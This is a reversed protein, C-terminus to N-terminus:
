QTARRATVAPVGTSLFSLPTPGLFGNTGDTVRGRGWGSAKAEVPVCSNKPRERSPKRPHGRHGVVV